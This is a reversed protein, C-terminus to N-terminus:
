QYNNKLPRDSIIIAEIKRKAAVLRLGHGALFRMIKEANYTNIEFPFSLDIKYPLNTEDIVPVSFLPQLLQSVLMSSSENQIAKHLTNQQVDIFPKGGTTKLQVTNKTAQLVYCDMVRTENRASIRFNRYLDQQMYRYAEERSVPPTILEYCYRNEPLKELSTDTFIKKNYKKSEVILRNAGYSKFVSPYAIALLTPLDCNLMYMRSIRGNDSSKIGIMAGLNKKFGTILSRYLFGAPDDGGNEDILLPKDPNFRLFDRKTVLTFTSDSLFKEINAATVDEANTIGAVKGFPNIWVYHPIEKLPFYLSISYDHLAYPLTFSEGTREKRKMLFASVHAVSESTDADVMLIQMRDDFQQQLHQMKPFERICSGCWTAWFDLIVLKGKLQPLTLASSPYNYINTLTIAPVAEGVNLAKVTQGQNVLPWFLIMLCYITKM